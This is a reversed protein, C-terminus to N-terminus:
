GGSSSGASTSSVFSDASYGIVVSGCTPPSGCITGTIATSLRVRFYPIATLNFEAVLYTNAQLVYVPGISAGNGPIFGEAPFWYVDDISYEFTIAGSTICGQNLSVILTNYTYDGSVILATSDVPTDCNWLPLAQGCENCANNEGVSVSAVIGYQSETFQSM